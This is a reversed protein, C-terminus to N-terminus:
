GKLIDNFKLYKKRRNELPNGNSLSLPMKNVYNLFKKIQVKRRLFLNYSINLKNWDFNKLIYIFSHYHIKIFVRDNSNGAKLVFRDYESFGNKMWDFLFAFCESWTEELVRSYDYETNNILVRPNFKKETLKNTPLPINVISIFENFLSLVDTQIQKSFISNPLNIEEKEQVKIIQRVKPHCYYSIWEISKKTLKPSLNKFRSFNLKCSKLLDENYSSRQQKEKNKLLSENFYLYDLAHGVEHYFTQKLSRKYWLLGFKNKDLEDSNMFINRGYNCIGAPIFDNSRGRADSHKESYSGILFKYKDLSQVKTNKFFKIDESLINYVYKFNQYDKAYKSQLYIPFNLIFSKFDELILFNKEEITDLYTELCEIDKKANSIIEDDDEIGSIEYEYYKKNYIIRKLKNYYVEENFSNVFKTISLQENKFIEVLIDFYSYGLIIVDNKITYNERYSKFEDYLNSNIQWDIYNAENNDFVFRHRNLESSISYHM